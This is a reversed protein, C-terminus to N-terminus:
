FRYTLEVYALNASSGTYISKVVGGGAVQAFYGSLLTDPRVQIDASIDWFTALESNGGSPRGVYGFTWPQFAGGGQYWNDRSNSLWLGHMDTRVDVRKNPRLILSGFADRINMMNFFPIRAYLRPTPLIQFFTGHKGDAPDSDGSSQSYGGRVWPRLRPIGEPQWGLEAAFAFARHDLTGWRGAQGVAWLLMDIPGNGTRREAIWNGGFTGIRINKLDLARVNAPRNDVKLIDRTDEYYIGFLRWNADYKDRGVGDTFAAYFVPIALNGWGDVQFVGRTPVAGVLTVNRRDRTWSYHMGDFSRGVHSFGFVGILRQSIRDRKLAALTANKPTTEMGENFEFRGLQLSDDSAAVDTFRVLAQKPFVMAANRSRDNALYYNGGLGLQLQPAPAVARDPLGLLVPAALDFQWNGRAFKQEFNIRGISGSFIYANDGAGEFWRWAEARTRVSGSWMITQATSSAATLLLLTLARRAIGGALHPPEGTPLM